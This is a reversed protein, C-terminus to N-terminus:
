KKTSGIKRFERMSVNYRKKFLNKLHNASEYGCERTISEIPDRTTLLLRKVESLRIEQIADLMTRGELERYRLDALRRSVGLNAVVDRVGIGKLANARIFANAKRVLQGANSDPASSHRRILRHVGYLITAGLVSPDGDMLKMLTEAARYGGDEFDPEISSLPPVARECILQDNDVGLVAVRTPVRLHALSCAELVNVARDDCAAFVATPPEMTRLWQGLAVTEDANPEQPPEFVKCEFGAEDLATRYAVLRQEAWAARSRTHVFAYSRYHGPALFHEAATRGLAGSDCNVFATPAERDFLSHGDPLDLAVTPVALKKALRLTAPTGYNLLIGDLTSSIAEDRLMARAIGETRAIRINWDPHSQLFRFVGALADHGSKGALWLAVLVNKSSKNEM